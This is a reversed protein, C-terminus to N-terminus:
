EPCGNEARQVQWGGAADPTIEFTIIVEGAQFEFACEAERWRRSSPEDGEAGEEWTYFACSVAWQGPTPDDFPHSFSDQTLDDIFSRQPDELLAEGDLFEDGRLPFVSWALVIKDTDPHAEPPFTPYKLNVVATLTPLRAIAGYAATCGVVPYLFVLPLLLFPSLLVFWDLM